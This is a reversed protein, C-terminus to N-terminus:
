KMDPMTNRRKLKRILSDSNTVAKARERQIGPLPPPDKPASDTLHKIEAAIASMSRAYLIGAQQYEKVEPPLVVDVDDEIDSDENFPILEEAPMTQSKGIHALKKVNNAELLMDLVQRAKGHSMYGDHTEEEEEDSSSGHETNRELLPKGSQSTLPSTNSQAVSETQGVEKWRRKIQKKLKRREPGRVIRSARHRINEPLGLAEIVAKQIDQYGDEENSRLEEYIVLEEYTESAEHPVSTSELDIKSGPYFEMGEHDTAKLELEQDGVSSNSQTSSVKDHMNSPDDSDDSDIVTSDIYIEEFEPLENPSQPPDLDYIEEIAELRKLKNQRRIEVVMPHSHIGPPKPPVDPKSKQLRKVIIDDYIDEFSSFSALRQKQMATIIIDDDQNLTSDPSASNPPPLSKLQINRKARLLLQLHAPKPLLRPKSRSSNQMRYVIVDDYIDEATASGGLYDAMEDAEPTSDLMTPFMRSLPKAPFRTPTPTAQKQKSDQLEAYLISPVGASTDLSRNKLNESVQTKNILKLNPLTQRGAPQVKKSNVNHKPLLNLATNQVKHVLVDDYTGEFKFSALNARRDLSKTKLNNTGSVRHVLIDEYTCSVSATKTTEIDDYAPIDDLIVSHPKVISLRSDNSNPHLMSSTRPHLWPSMSKLSAFSGGETQQQHFSPQMKEQSPNKFTSDYIVEQVRTFQNSSENAINQVSKSDQDEKDLEYASTEQPLEESGPSFPPTAAENLALALHSPTVSKQTVAVTEM